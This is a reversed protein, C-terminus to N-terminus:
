TGPPASGPPQNGMSTEAWAEVIRGDALQHIHIGTVRAPQGQYTGRGTWRTVVKDGDALMEEVTLQLDPSGAWIEQWLQKEGARGAFNEGQVKFDPALVEDLM